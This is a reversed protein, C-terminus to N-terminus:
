RDELLFYNLIAGACISATEARLVNQNLKIKKVKFKNIFFDEEEKLFGKEPGVIIFIDESSEIKDIKKSDLSCLYGNKFEPLKSINEFIKIEPLFLRGSQKVASILIQNMRFIRNQSINVKESNKSFFVWFEDIGLETNKELIYDMNQPKLISQVLVSKTKRKRNENLSYIKIEASNKSIKLIKAKALIGNGNIIEIEDDETNRMVNKLYHLENNELLYTSNIKINEDIFYRNQPM